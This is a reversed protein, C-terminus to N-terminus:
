IGEIKGTFLSNSLPSWNAASQSCLWVLDNNYFLKRDKPSLLKAIFQAKANAPM